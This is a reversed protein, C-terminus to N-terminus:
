RGGSGSTRRRHNVSWCRDGNGKIVVATVTWPVFVRTSAAAGVVSNTLRSEDPARPPSVRLRLGQNTASGGCDIAPKGAWGFPVIIDNKVLCRVILAPAIV